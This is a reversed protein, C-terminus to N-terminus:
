DTRTAAGRCTPHRLPMILRVLRRASRVRWMSIWRVTLPASCVLSTSGRVNSTWWRRSPSPSVPVFMPHSVVEHPAHVTWRSPSDTFDHVTRATWASPWSIVVM